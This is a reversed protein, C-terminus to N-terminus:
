ILSFKQITRPGRDVKASTLSVEGVYIDGHSDVAIGHPALFLPDTLEHAENGWRTILTGDLTFISVRRCLESVYVIDNEDICLDTPRFVNTWESVLDGSTTFIQIRSNERDTV